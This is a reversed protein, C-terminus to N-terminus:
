LSTNHSSGEFCRPDKSTKFVSQVVKYDCPCHCWCIKRLVLPNLKDPGAAKHPNLTQLRRRVGEETIDVTPMQPTDNPTGDPKIFNAARTSLTKLSLPNRASFVSQFQSNLINAKDVPDDVLKKNKKLPAVGQTDQKRHKVFRWFKKDSTPSDDDDKDTIIGEIYHWYAKRISKPTFAKLSRYHQSARRAYASGQQKEFLKRPKRLLRKIDLTIWPPREKMKTMRSPIYKSMGEEIAKTFKHLIHDVPTEETTSSIIDDGAAKIHTKLGEWDAKKFSHVRRPKKNQHTLSVDLEVYM